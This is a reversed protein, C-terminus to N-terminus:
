FRRRISRVVFGDSSTSGEYAAVAAAIVAALETDDDQEEQAPAQDSATEAETEQVSGSKQAKRDAAKKQLAPILKFASIIFSILILVAFVTGMGILTNLAAGSMLEGMSSVPNLASSELVYFQDNSYIVEAIANKKEGTIEVEVVIQNGDIQATAEGIEQIAGIEKYASRYSDVAKYFAYGDVNIDIGQQQALGEVRYAIEEMTLGDLVDDAINDSMFDSLMPVTVLSALSKADEMKQQEYATPTEGSGCATLGFICSLMCIWVLFKKM